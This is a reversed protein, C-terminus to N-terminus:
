PATGKARQMIRGSTLRGEVLQMCNFMIQMTSTDLRMKLRKMGLM